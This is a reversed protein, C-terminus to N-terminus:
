INSLKTEFSILTTTSATTKTTTRTHRHSECSDDTVTLNATGIILHIRCLQCTVVVAVVVVAIVARKRRHSSGTFVQCGISPLPPHVTTNCRRTV